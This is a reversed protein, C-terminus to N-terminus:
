NQKFFKQMLSEYLNEMEKLSKEAEFKLKNISKHILVFKEQLVLPPIPIDIKLLDKKTLSPITVAKNLREFDYFYCFYYLYDCNIIEINPELGFVTDVNWIKEKVIIPKNISGKRGILVSNEKVLWDSAKGIKGGSGFIDYKGNKSEVKRQNKGNIIKLIEEWKKVEWGKENKIPDGFM